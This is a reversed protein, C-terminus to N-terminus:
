SDAVRVQQAVLANNKNTSGCPSSGQVRLNFTQLAVLQAVLANTSENPNLGLDETEYVSTRNSQVVLAILFINNTVGSPSSGEVGFNFTEHEVLQAILDYSTGKSVKLIVYKYQGTELFQTKRKRKIDMRKTKM